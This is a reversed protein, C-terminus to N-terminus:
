STAKAVGASRIAQMGGDAKIEIGNVWRAGNGLLFAIVDAIEGCNGHRGVIQRSAEMRAQGITSYFDKLIPTEVPGPSVANVRVGTAALQAAAHPVWHLLLRKSLEYMGNGDFGTVDALDRASDDDAALVANLRAQDWTCRHGAISAVAVISGGKAMLPALASVLWRISLFNVSFVKSTAHTGPLGAVLALGHIPGEIKSIATQTAVIDSLDCTIMPFTGDGKAIDLGTVRWGDVLLQTCLAAGIGSAAGTVVAHRASMVM